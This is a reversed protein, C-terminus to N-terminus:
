EAAFSGETRTGVPDVSAVGGEPISRLATPGSPTFPQRVSWGTATLVVQTALALGVNVILPGQLNATWRHTEADPVTVVLIGVQSPHTAGIVQLARAEPEVEYGEFYTFPDAVVFSPAGSSVGALVFLGTGPGERLDFSTAHPFGLIGEPFRIRHARGHPWGAHHHIPATSTSM